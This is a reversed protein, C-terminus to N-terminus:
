HVGQVAHLSYGMPIFVTDRPFSSQDLAVLCIGTISVCGVEITALM